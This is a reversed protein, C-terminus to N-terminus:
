YRRYVNILRKPLLRADFSWRPYFDQFFQTSIRLTQGIIKPPIERVDRFSVALLCVAVLLLLDLLFSLFPRFPPCSSRLILRFSFCSSHLPAPCTSSPSFLPPFSLILILLLLRFFHPSSSFSYSSSYCSYSLLLFLLSSPLFM